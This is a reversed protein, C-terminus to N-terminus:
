HAPSQHSRLKLPRSRISSKSASGPAVMRFWVAGLHPSSSGFGTGARPPAKRTPLPFSATSRAGARESRTSKAIAM